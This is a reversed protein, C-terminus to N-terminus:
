IKRRGIIFELLYYVLGFVCAWQIASLFGYDYVDKYNEIILRFLLYSIFFLKFLYGAKLSIRSLFLLVFFLVLLFLQEFLIVPYKVFGFTLLLSNVEVVKGVIGDHEGSILCGFRGVFLGVVLPFTFADGSKVAIKKLKKVVEISVFAGLLAGVITKSSMLLFLHDKISLSSEFHELYSLM